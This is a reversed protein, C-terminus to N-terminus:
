QVSEEAEKRTHFLKKEPVNRFIGRPFLQDIFEIDFLRSQDFNSIHERVLMVERVKYDSDGPVITYATDGAQLPKTGALKKLFLFRQVNVGRARLVAAAIGRDKKKSPYQFLEVLKDTPMQHALTGNSLKHSM